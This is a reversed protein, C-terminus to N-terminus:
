VMALALGILDAKRIKKRCGTLCRLQACTFQSLEAALLATPHYIPAVPPLTVVPAVRAAYFRGLIASAAILLRRADCAILWAIIVLAKLCGAVILAVELWDINAAFWRAAAILWKILPWLLRGTAYGAAYTFRISRALTDLAWLIAGATLLEGAVAWLRAAALILSDAGHLAQLLLLM